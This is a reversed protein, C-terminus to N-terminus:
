LEFLLSVSINHNKANITPFDTFGQTFFRNKMTRESYAYAVDLKIEGFNYGLGGSFGHLDGITENNKYPSEEWRYGARISWEAIRREAGVKVEFANSDFANSMVENTGRFDREPGYKTSSYDKMGADVSILGSKGFIYALSGTIKGPTQLKYDDYVVTVGPSYLYSIPNSVNGETRISGISQSVEDRLKMWTPSQYSLGVRFDETVKAIAGIQFSFGSGYTYLDNNFELYQVGNGPNSNQETFITSQTYDTFHSNLNVGVYLRDKYQGAVNFSVKGNFGTSAFSNEQYYNGGAAVNSGYLSTNPNNNAPNIIYGQYGLLAQADNYSLEEYNYNDLVDLPVGGNANAYFLFYNDISRTPNTGASFWTNDFGASNEYDIALTFKKWGSKKDENELVYVGGAQNLDFTNDNERSTTGFYGATNHTNYVALTAGAQHNAFVASGAPNISISSLDGGLAGFAGSMGRFRATGNINDIAYRMADPVDQSQMSYTLGVTIFLLIRKM